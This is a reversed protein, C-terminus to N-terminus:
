LMGILKYYARYMVSTGDILMVRGGLSNSDNIGNKSKPANAPKDQLMAREVESSTGLTSPCIAARGLESVDPELHSSFKCYGQYAFM